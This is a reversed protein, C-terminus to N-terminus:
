IFSVIFLLHNWKNSLVNLSQDELRPGSLTVYEEIELKFLSFILRRGYCLQHYEIFRFADYIVSSSGLKAEEEKVFLFINM